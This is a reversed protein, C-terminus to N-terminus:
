SRKKRKRKRLDEYLVGTSDYWVKSGTSPHYVLGIWGVPISDVDFQSAYRPTRFPHTHVVGVIFGQTSPICDADDTDIIFQDRPTDSRNPMEIVHWSGDNRQLILGCREETDPGTDFASVDLPKM